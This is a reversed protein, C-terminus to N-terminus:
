PYVPRYAHLIRVGGARLFKKKTFKGKIKLEEKIIKYAKKSNKANFFTEGNKSELKWEHPLNRTEEIRIQPQVYTREIRRCVHHPSTWTTQSRTFTMQVGVLYVLM